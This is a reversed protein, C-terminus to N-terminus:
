RFNGDFIERLIMKERQFTFNELLLYKIGAKPQSSHSPRGNYCHLQGVLSLVNFLLFTTLLRESLVELGFHDRGTTYITHSRARM